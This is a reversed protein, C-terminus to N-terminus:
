PITLRHVAILERGTTLMKSAYSGDGHAGDHDDVPGVDSGHLVVDM